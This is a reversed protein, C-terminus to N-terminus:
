PSARPNDIREALENAVNGVIAADHTDTYETPRRLSERAYDIWQRERVGRDALMLLLLHTPIHQYDM